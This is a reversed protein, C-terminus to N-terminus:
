KKIYNVKYFSKDSNELLICKKSTWKKLNLIPKIYFEQSVDPYKDRNLKICYDFEFKYDQNEELNILILKKLDIKISMYRSTLNDIIQIPQYIFSMDDITGKTELCLYIEDGKLIRYIIPNWICQSNNISIRVTVTANDEEINRSRDIITVTDQNTIKNLFKVKIKIPIFLIYKYNFIVATIIITLIMVINQTNDQNLYFTVAILIINKFFEKKLEGDIKM